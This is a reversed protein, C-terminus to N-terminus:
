RRCRQPNASLVEEQYPRAQWRQLCIRGHNSAVWKGPREEYISGEGAGRGSMIDERKQHQARAGNAINSAVNNQAIGPKILTLRFRIEAASVDCCANGQFKTRFPWEHSLHSFLHVRGTSLYKAANALNLHFASRLSLLRSALISVILCAASWSLFQIM